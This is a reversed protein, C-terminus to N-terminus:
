EGSYTYATTTTVVSSVSGMGVSTSSLPGASVSSSPHCLLLLCVPSLRVLVICMSM